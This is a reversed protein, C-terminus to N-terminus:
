YVFKEITVLYVPNVTKKEDHYEVGTVGYVVGITSERDCPSVGQITPEEAEPIEVPENGCAELWDEISSYETIQSEGVEFAGFGGSAPSLYSVVVRNVGFSSINDTDWPLFSGGGDTFRIYTGDSLDWAAVGINGGFLDDYADRRELDVGDPPEDVHYEDLWRLFKDAKEDDGELYDCGVGVAMRIKEVWERADM